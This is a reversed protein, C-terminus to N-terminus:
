GDLQWGEPAYVTNKVDSDTWHRTDVGVGAVHATNM